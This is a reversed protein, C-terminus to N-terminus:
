NRPSPSDASRAASAGRFNMGHGIGHEIGAAKKRVLASPTSCNLQGRGVRTGSCSKKLSKLLLRLKDIMEGIQSCFTTALEVRNSWLGIEDIAGSAIPSVPRSPSIKRRRNVAGGTEISPRCPMTVRGGFRVTEFSSCVM